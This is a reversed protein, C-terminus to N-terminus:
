PRAHAPGAGGHAGHRLCYLGVDIRRTRFGAECYGLYYEWLRRFPLDFRADLAAIAPWAAVFRRHWEALTRAYDPGFHEAHTIVLGARAAEEHLHRRTPLMGGPFICRQIFDPAARYHEFRSEDITIAQVVATGDSALRDRLTAFYAPWYAEGVAEIMEISAIRDYRGDLDRYDQLRLDLRHAQGARQARERAFALQERSLTVGTVPAAFREALTTALTGWGIGIELVSAGPRMDLLECLRDLRRQQGAELTQAPDAPDFQASSYLMSADLWHAYFDNGLDYHFAINDRSGRRTNAHLRHLLLALWRAPGRSQVASGFAAENVAGFCLLACLDPTSWDGDRYSLALGLDGEGLLRLVPRWRHLHLEAQPGPLAGTAELRTGDPLTLVLRGQRVRALLRRLPIQHLPRRGRQLKLTAALASPEPPIPLTSSM